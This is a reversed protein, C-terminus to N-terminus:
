KTSLDTPDPASSRVRVVVDLRSLTLGEPLVDQSLTLEGFGTPDADWLEGTEENFFHFHHNTNTDFWTIGPTVTVERLLGLDQFHNLTNYVTALSVAHGEATVERHLEEATVHRNPGSFLRVALAMRQRTPRINRETLLARIDQSTLQQM